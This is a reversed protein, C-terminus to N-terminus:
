LLINPNASSWSGGYWLQLSKVYWCAICNWLPSPATVIKHSQQISLYSIGVKYNTAVKSFM